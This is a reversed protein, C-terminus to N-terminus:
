GHARGGTGIGPIKLKNEYLNLLYNISVTLILYIVAVSLYIAMAQSSNIIIYSGQRLLETVGIAYALSTDKLVIATENAFPPIAVRLAQPMIVYIFAQIRNMGLSLAAKMQTGSISQIAGRYIQSQYSASRLGLAIVAATFAPFRIGLEPFGFFILFLIVLLPISRMVREYVLVIIKILNNGYVQGFGLLVGLVVGLALSVLSLNITVLTGELLYPLADWILKIIDIM